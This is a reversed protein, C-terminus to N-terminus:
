CVRKAESLELGGVNKRWAYVTNRSVSFMRWADGVSLGRANPGGSRITARNPSCTSAFGNPLPINHDPAMGFM